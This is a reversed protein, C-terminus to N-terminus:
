ELERAASNVSWATRPTLSSAQNGQQLIRHPEKTRKRDQGNRRCQLDQGVDEDQQEIETRGGQLKCGNGQDSSQRHGTQKGQPIQEGAITRNRGPFPRATESSPIIPGAGAALEDSERRRQEPPHSSVSTIRLETIANLRQGDMLLRASGARLLGRKERGAM